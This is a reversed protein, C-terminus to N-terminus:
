GLRQSLMKLLLLMNWLTRWYGGVSEETSHSKLGGYEGM